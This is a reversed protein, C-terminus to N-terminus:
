SGVGLDHPAFGPLPRVLCPTVAELGWAGEGVGGARGFLGPLVDGPAVCFLRPPDIPGLAAPLCDPLVDGVGTPLCPLVLPSEVAMAHEASSWLLHM